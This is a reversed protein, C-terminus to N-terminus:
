RRSTVLTAAHRGAAAAALFYRPDDAVTRGMSAAGGPCSELAAELGSCNVPVLRHRGALLEDVVGGALRAVETEPLPVDAARLAVQGYATLSHHSVGQHRPRPDAGSIRVAVVPRGGVATVANVAEGAAIGTFGWRTATGATGPGPAVVAVDAAVVARAAILGSHLTLAELDGGFAQGCTVTAALWGASRLAPITRSFWAPLAGGDTMVYAVRLDPRDARLGALVASLASHLEAVVVPMGGLGPCRAVADRTREDEEVGSVLVQQPTYRAKVLRAQPPPAPGTRDHLHVVFAWGGTGLGRDLAATSVVATDGIRPEGVLDPYALARVPDRGPLDVEVAVAGPWREGVALVRGVTTTSM